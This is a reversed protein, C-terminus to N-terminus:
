LEILISYFYEASKKWSYKSLINKRKLDDIKKNIIVGSKYKEPNIFVANDEFVEHMVPLDSVILSNCGSSLSELPPLGFGEAFSPFIFSKCHKMLTKAESDSIYGIMKVNDSIVPNNKNNNYIKDTKGAIVFISDKNDKGADLIWKLNKNPEISSLSFYYKKEQLNFKSLVEEDYKIREIHQWSPYVVFVKSEDTQPYNRLIDKKASYSDTIIVDARKLSNSLQIKYWLVFFKNYFEPYDKIKTDFITVIDPKFLPSTNCLNVTKRNNNIAYFCYDLQEWLNGKNHGVEVIKINRLELKVLYNRPVALEFINPESIKDLENILEYAFRDVSTQKRSLFRGNIVYKKNM